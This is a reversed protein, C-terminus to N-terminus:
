TVIIQAIQQKHLHFALKPEYLLSSFSIAILSILPESESLRIVRHRLMSRVPSTSETFVVPILSIKGELYKGVLVYM